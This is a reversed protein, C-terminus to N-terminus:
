EGAGEQKPAPATERVRVCDVTERGCKTKTPYLTIRKGAWARMEGGYLGAITKGNTKNVVFLKPTKEFSMVPKTQKRGGVLMLEDFKVDAITLTVDKGKLDAAGIYNSPFALEGDITIAVSL